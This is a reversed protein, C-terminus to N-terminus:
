ADINSQKLGKLVDLASDVADQARAQNQLLNTMKDNSCSVVALTVIIFIASYKM